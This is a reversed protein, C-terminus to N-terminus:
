FVLIVTSELPKQHNKVTKSLGEFIPFLQIILFAAAIVAAAVIAMARILFGFRGVGMRWAIVIARGDGLDVDIACQAHCYGTIM